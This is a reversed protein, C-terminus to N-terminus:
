FPFSQQGQALLGSSAVGNVRINDIVVVGRQSLAVGIRQVQGSIRLQNADFTVTTLGQNNTSRTGSAVPLYRTTSTTAGNPQDDIVLVPTVTTNNVGVQGSVAALTGYSFQVSSVQTNNIGQFVAGVSGIRPDTSNVLSSLVLIPKTAGGNATLSSLAPVTNTSVGASQASSGNISSVGQSSLGSTNNQSNFGQSSLGGTNNQSNFGQSSLGGSNNQSNFGQSSLGGTSNQSNFGQSSLGGSNNASSFGQSTTTGTTGYVTSGNNVSSFGQSSTNGFNSNNNGFGTTGRTMALGVTAFGLGGQRSGVGGQPAPGANNGTLTPLNALSNANVNVITATFLTQNGATYPATVFQTAVGTSASGTTGRALVTATAAHAATSAAILFSLSTGFLLASKRMHDEM